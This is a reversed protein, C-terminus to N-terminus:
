MRPREDGSSEISVSLAEDEGEGEVGITVNNRDKLEGKVMATALTTVIEREIYRRLPRVGFAPEYATDVVHDVVQPAIVYKQVRGVPFIGSGYQQLCHNGTQRHNGSIGAAIRAIHGVRLQTFHQWLWHALGAQIM